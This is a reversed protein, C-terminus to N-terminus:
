RANLCDDGFVQKKFASNLNWDVTVQITWLKSLIKKNCHTKTQDELEYLFAYGHLCEFWGCKEEHQPKDPARPSGILSTRCRFGRHLRWVNDSVKSNASDGSRYSSPGQFPGKFALSANLLELEVEVSAYSFNAEPIVFLHDELGEPRCGFFRTKFQLPCFQFSHSCQRGDRDFARLLKRKSKFVSVLVNQEQGPITVFGAAVVAFKGVPRSLCESNPKAAPSMRVLLPWEGHTDQSELSYRWSVRRM